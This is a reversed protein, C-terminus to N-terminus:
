VFPFRISSAPIMRSRRALRTKQYPGARAGACPPMLESSCTFSPPTLCHIEMRAAFGFAGTSSNWRKYGGAAANDRVVKGLFGEQMIAAQYDSFNDWRYAQSDRDDDGGSMPTRQYCTGNVTRGDCSMGTFQLPSLLQNRYADYGWSSGSKTGM